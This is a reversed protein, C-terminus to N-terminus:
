ATVEKVFKFAWTSTIVPCDLLLIAFATLLLLSSLSLLLLVYSLAVINEQVIVIHRSNVTLISSLRHHLTQALPSLSM